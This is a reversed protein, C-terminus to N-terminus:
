PLRGLKGTIQKARGKYFHCEPVTGEANNITDIFESHIGEATDTSALYEADAPVYLMGDDNHEAMTENHSWVSIKEMPVKESKIAEAIMKM